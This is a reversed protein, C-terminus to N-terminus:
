IYNKRSKLRYTSKRMIPQWLGVMRCINEAFSAGELFGFRPINYPDKLNDKTLYNPQNTFAYKYNLKKLIEKERIGFDGNPYAFLNVEKETWLELKKKSKVLEEYVTEEECNPLIP